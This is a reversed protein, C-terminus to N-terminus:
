QKEAQSIPFHTLAQCEPLTELGNSGKLTEADNFRRKDKAHERAIFQFGKRKERQITGGNGSSNAGTTTFLCGM